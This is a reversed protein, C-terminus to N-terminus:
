EIGLDKLKTYLHQRPIQLLRTAEAKNGQPRALARMILLREQQRTAPELPMM